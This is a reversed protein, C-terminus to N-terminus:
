EGLFYIRYPVWYQAHTAFVLWVMQVAASYGCVALTLQTSTGGKTGFVYPIRPLVALQLPILFLALRDIATTFNAFIVLPLTALAVLAIVSWMDQQYTNFGLRKRLLLALVAPVFNMAVRVVAGSSEYDSDVYGTIMQDASNSLLVAFLALFILGGLISQILNRRLIPAMAIPLMLLATKHFLAAAFIFVVLRVISKEEVDAFGALIIGIAVGQRTYGMGVVIVLYPIAVLFTLAPNPQRSCFRIIGLTMILGCITNVLWMGADLRAAILVVASYGVDFQSIAEPFALIQVLNYNELYPIWDGGVEFRLGIMLATALGMINLALSPAMRKSAAGDVDVM